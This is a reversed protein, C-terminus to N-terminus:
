FHVQKLEILQQKNIQFNVPKTVMKVSVLAGKYRAVTGFIQDHHEHSFSLKRSGSRMSALSRASQGLSRLSQGIQLAIIHSM